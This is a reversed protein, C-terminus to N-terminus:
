VSKLQSPISAQALGAFSITSVMDVPSYAQEMETEEENEAV